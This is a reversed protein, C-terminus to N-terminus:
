ELSGRRRMRREETNQFQTMKTRKMDGGERKGSGASLEERTVTHEHATTKGQEFLSKMRVLDDGLAHKPDADFISALVHGVVGGVPNYSMRLHVRTGGDPTAD